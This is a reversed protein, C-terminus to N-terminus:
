KLKRKVWYPSVSIDINMTKMACFKLIFFADKEHQNDAIIINWHQARSIPKWEGPYIIYVKSSLKSCELLIESIIKVQIINPSLAPIGEIFIEDFPKSVRLKKMFDKYSYSSIYTAKINSDFRAVGCTVGPDIALIKM